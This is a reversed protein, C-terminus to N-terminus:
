AGRDASAEAVLAVQTAAAAADRPTDLVLDAVGLDAFAGVLAVLRPGSLPGSCRVVVRLSDFPRGAEAMAERLRAVAAAVTGLGSGGSPPADAAIQAIWGDGHRVVRRLAAAGMGGILVPIPAVPTPRVALEDSWAVHEGDFPPLAGTWARRLVGIWEDLVRGRASFDAGLAAFEEELWGAGVGLALRGRAFASVTALQKALLIPSRQPLVLVATGLEVRETAVAVAALTTVAELYDATPDWAARGDASYPYRSRIVTPQVVHDSVWLSAAGADELARATGIVEAPDIGAGSTPLRFGLRIM